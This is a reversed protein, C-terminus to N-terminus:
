PRYYNNKTKTRLENSDIGFSSFLQKYEAQGLHSKIDGVYANVLHGNVFDLSELFKTRDEEPVGRLMSRFVTTPGGGAYCNSTCIHKSSKLCDGKDFCMYGKHDEGLRVGLHALLQRYEGPTIHSEIDGIYAGALGGHMFFMGELFEKRVKTPVKALISKFSANPQARQPTGARATGPEQGAIITLTAVMIAAVTALVANNKLKRM